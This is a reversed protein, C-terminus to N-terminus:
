ILLLLKMTAVFDGARLRYFYAGSSLGSGDFRVEHYGAEHDGKALVAVQQGLTSFVAQQVASKHPVQNIGHLAAAHRLGVRWCSAGLEVTTRIANQLTYPTPSSVRGHHFWDRTGTRTGSRDGTKM